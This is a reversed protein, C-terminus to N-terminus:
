ITWPSRMPRKILRSAAPDSIIKETLPDFKITRGVQLSIQALHGPTISRHATECPTITEKRTKICDLFERHHGPSEKLHIETPSIKEKLINPDSARIKKRSVFIWGSDSIWRTGQEFGEETNNAIFMNLGNAYRTNIRFETPTNWIGPPPYIGSASVEVPGTNDLGLGWHAIDVHHASWDMIKGGGYDTNWRWTKHVRSKCYPTYPAPGLWMNYDLETPPKKIQTDVEIGYTGRGSPLGIRVTHVKGIRNNRILECALRFNSKSRQWSGTQWICNLRKVTDCLKRGEHLNHTLPKEGYIDKGAKAAAIGILGHWHDPTACMIADIDDRILLERFDTYTKCDNNHYKRDVKAKATNLHNTDVDCVATVLCDSERLFASINGRGMDGVGIGALTIKNSPAIKNNLGLVSSPVILPFGITTAIGISSKM